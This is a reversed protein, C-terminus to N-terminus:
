KRRRVNWLILLGSFIFGFPAFSFTALPNLACAKQGELLLDDVIVTATSTTAGLCATNCSLQVTYTGSVSATFTPTFTNANTLTATGAEDGVITWTPIATPATTTTDEPSLTCTGTLQISTGAALTQTAGASVSLTEISNMFIYASRELSLNSGIAAIDDCGQQDFDGVDLSNSDTIQDVSPNTSFNLQVPTNLGGESNSSTVINITAADGSPTGRLVAAVDEISDNNFHGAVVEIPNEDDANTVTVTTPSTFSNLGAPVNYYYQLGNVNIADDGISIVIDDVGDGNFDGAAISSLSLTSVGSGPNSTNVNIVTSCTFGCAGDGICSVVQDDITGAKNEVALAVDPVGDDNFDGVAITQSSGVAGTLDLVTVESVTFNGLQNNEAVDMVALTPTNGTVVVDLYNDGNCDFMATTRNSISSVQGLAGGAFIAAYSPTEPFIGSADPTDFALNPNNTVYPVIVSSRAGPSLPGALVTAIEDTGVVSNDEAYNASSAFQGSGVGCTSGAGNNLLISTNDIGPTSWESVEAVCDTFGDGNFDAGASHNRCAISQSDELCDGVGATCVTRSECAVNNNQFVQASVFNPLSFSFFTFSTLLSFHLVTKKM